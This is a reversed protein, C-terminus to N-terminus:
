GNTQIKGGQVVKSVLIDAIAVGTLDNLTPIRVVLAKILIPTTYVKQVNSYRINIPIQVWWGYRGALDGTTILGQNFVTPAASPTAQIFLKADQITKPNAYITLVDALKQLGDPTYYHSLNAYEVAYNLFNYSFSAPMAESIWQLLDATSIYPENVPVPPFVRWDNDTHFTVPNPSELYLSFSVMLLLFIAGAMLVMAIFVKYFGDRYFDKRLRVIELEEGAM